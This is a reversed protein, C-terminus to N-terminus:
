RLKALQCYEFIKRETIVDSNEFDAPNIFMIEDADEGPKFSFQEPKVIFTIRMQYLNHSKQYRPDESLITEYDFDGQLSVEEFLERALAEKVTEGHELGGGPIDWWDRGREKVVLVHGDDNLIVAKLSVRFLFDNLGPIDSYSIAGHVNTSSTVDAKIKIAVEEAQAIGPETLPLERHGNLIGSATDQNQGHRALYINLMNKYYCLSSM